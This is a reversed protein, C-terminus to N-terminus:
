LAAAGGSLRVSRRGRPRVGGQARSPVRRECSRRLGQSEGFAHEIPGSCLRRVANWIHEATVLHFAAPPLPGGQSSAADTEGWGAVRVIQEDSADGAFALRLRKTSNGRGRRTSSDSGVSAMRKSLRTFLEKPSAGTDRSFYIQRQEIALERARASDVWVGDLVLGSRAIRKLLLRLAPGYHSNRANPSGSAGGRSHLILEKPRVEFRADIPAGSDDHFQLIAMHPAGTLPLNKFMDFRSPPCPEGGVKDLMNQGLLRDTTSSPTM